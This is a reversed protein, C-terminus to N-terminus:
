PLELQSGSGEWRTISQMSSRGAVREAKWREIGADQLAWILTLRDAM